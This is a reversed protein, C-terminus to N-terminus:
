TKNYVEDKVKGKVPKRLLKLSQNSKPYMQVQEEAVGDSNRVLEDKPFDKDKILHLEM